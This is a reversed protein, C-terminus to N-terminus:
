RDLLERMVDGLQKPSYPKQLYAIRERQGEPFLDPTFPYGSSVLVKLKPSLKLMQALLEEGCIGPLNLDLVVSAYAAGENGLLAVAGRGDATVDVQYGLRSLYRRLLELLAIEDDVVLIRGSAM